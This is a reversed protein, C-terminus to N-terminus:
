KQEMKLPILYTKGKFVLHILGTGISPYAHCFYTEGTSLYTFHFVVSSENGAWLCAASFDKNVTVVQAKGDTNFSINFPVFSGLVLWKTGVLNSTSGNKLELSQEKEIIKGM